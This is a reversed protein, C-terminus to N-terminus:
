FNIMDKDEPIIVEGLFFEHVTNFIKQKEKETMPPLHVLYVKKVDASCILSNIQIAGAHGVSGNLKGGCDQILVETKGHLVKKFSGDIISDGSYILYNGQKSRIKIGIASIQGHKVKFYNIEYDPISIDICGNESDKLTNWDIEVADRKKELEFTKILQKGVQLTSELGHIRIKKDKCIGNTLWYSHIFSPLGYIHDVHAHTFIIDTVNELNYGSSLINQAPSSSCDILCVKTGFDLLLSLNLRNGEPVASGTGLFYIKM